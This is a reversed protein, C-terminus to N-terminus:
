AIVVLPLSPTQLRRGDELDLPAVLHWEGPPVAYGLEPSYGATGVVLPVRVTEGPHATFVILPLREAGAFGGVATGTSDIIVALVHGNTHIGIERDGANTVLLAHTSTTGARVTLPGDLIIHLEDPNATERPPAAPRRPRPARAGPPYPLAGVQLAVYEGYTAHLQEAVAEAGAELHIEVPRPPAAEPNPTPYMLLPSPTRRQLLLLDRCLREWSTTGSM